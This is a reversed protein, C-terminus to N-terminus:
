GAVMMIITMYENLLFADLAVLVIYCFLFLPFLVNTFQETCTKEICTKTCHELSSTMM